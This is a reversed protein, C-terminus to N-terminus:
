ASKADMGRAHSTGRVVLASERDARAQAAMEEATIEGWEAEYATIAEALYRLRADRAAKEAMAENAWQSFSRAAGREVARTGEEVHEPAVTITIREKSM